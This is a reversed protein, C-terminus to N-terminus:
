ARVLRLQNLFLQLRTEPRSCICRQPTNRMSACIMLAAPMVGLLWLESPQQRHRKSSIQRADLHRQGGTTLAGALASDDRASKPFFAEDRLRLKKLVFDFLLKQGHEAIVRDIHLEIKILHRHRWSAFPCPHARSRSRMWVLAIVMLSHRLFCSMSGNAHAIFGVVLNNGLPAAHAPPPPASPM